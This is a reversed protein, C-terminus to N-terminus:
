TKQTPDISVTLGLLEEPRRGQAEPGKARRALDDAISARANEDLAPQFGSSVIAPNGATPVFTAAQEPRLIGGFADRPKADPNIVGVVVGQKNYETEVQLKFGEGDSGAEGRENRLIALPQHLKQMNQTQKSVIEEAETQGIIEVHGLSAILSHDKLDEEELPFIDGRSGRPQLEIRRKKDQRDLRLVFQTGHLNRLWKPGEEDAKQQKASAEARKAEVVRAKQQEQEIWKEVPIRIADPIQAGADRLTVYAEVTAHWAPDYEPIPTEVEVETKKQPAAKKRSTAAKKRTTKRRTPTTTAM